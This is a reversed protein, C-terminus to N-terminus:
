AKGGQLLKLGETRKKEAVDQIAKSVSAATREGAPKAMEKKDAVQKDLTLEKWAKAAGVRDRVSPPIEETKKVRIMKGTSLDPVFDDVVVTETIEGMAADHLFREIASFGKAARAAMQKRLKSDLKFEVKVTEENRSRTAEAM